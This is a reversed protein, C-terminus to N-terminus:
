SRKIEFDNIVVVRYQSKWETLIYINIVTLFHILSCLRKPRLKSFRWAVWGIAIFRVNFINDTIWMNIYKSFNILPPTIRKSFMILNSSFSTSRYFSDNNTHLVYLFNTLWDSYETHANAIRPEYPLVGAWEQVDRCFSNEFLIFDKTGTTKTCSILAHEEEASCSDSM